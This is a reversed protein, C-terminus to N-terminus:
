RAALRNRDSTFDQVVDVNDNFTLVLIEDEPELLDIFHRLAAEVERIKNEM